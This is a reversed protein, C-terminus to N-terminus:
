LLDIEKLVEKWYEARDQSIAEFYKECESILTQVAIKACQKAAPIGIFSYTDVKDCSIFMERLEIAAEKYPNM